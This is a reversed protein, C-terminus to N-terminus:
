DVRIGWTDVHQGHAQIMEPRMYSAYCVREGTGWDPVEHTWGKGSFIVATGAKYSFVADLENFIIKPKSATGLGILTDFYNARGHSDV